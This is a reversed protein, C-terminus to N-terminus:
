PRADAAGSRAALLRTIREHLERLSFPKALYDDMGAALCTLRDQDMALATIAIIPLGALVPDPLERIARTAGLGDLNPMQIDMLILDPRLTITQRVAQLGDTAVAVRCGKMSLYDQVAVLNLPTDDALLILPGHREASVAGPAPVTAPSSQPAPGVLRAVPLIVSFTSGAGECSEVEVRGDHLTALQRVLSLGLGTGPYERNLRSDLQQFPVFLRPLDDAAIGIGHDWVAFRIEEASVTVRLGLRGGGPTFKVANGLLNVLIQKMRRPDVSIQIGEEPLECELQQSRRQAMPVVIRVAERCLGALPTAICELNQQGSEIKALDLIDNILALLHRGSEAVLSLYRAQRDTLPGHLREILSETLGLISNLPTRLEHSMSALFANKHSSALALEANASLLEAGRERLAEEAHMRECFQGIQAGLAACTHLREQDPTEIRRSLFEVVGLVDGGAQIPIAVAGHMGERLARTACNWDSVAALDAFWEVKASEWAQGPLSEGKALRLERCYRVLEPAPCDAEPWHEGLVLADKEPTVMWLLGLAWDFEKGVSSLIARRSDDLSRCAALAQSLQFQARLSEETQRRATVDSEIAIFRTLRGDADRVPQVEIALWYKRGGKGYNVIETRFGEERAVHDHMMRITAPDTEPGQLFAGPKLGRVEALEYGTIRTFGANVWDIRANADTIVVANDTRAAVLALKEAEARARKFDTLDTVSVVVERVEGDERRPRLVARCAVAGDASDFEVRGERGAWASEYAPRLLRAAEPPAFEELTRGLVRGPTWGLCAALPGCCLTHRFGDDARTFCLVMGEGLELALRHHREAEAAGYSASVAALFAALGPSEAAARDLHERIQRRLLPHMDPWAEDPGPTDPNM